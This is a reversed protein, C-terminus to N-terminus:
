KEVEVLAVHSGAQVWYVPIDFLKAGRYLSGDPGEELDICHSCSGIARKEEMGLYWRVRSFDPDVGNQHRKHRYRYFMDHLHNVIDVLEQQAPNVTKVNSM